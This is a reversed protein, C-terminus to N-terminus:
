HLSPPALLDVGRTIEVLWQKHPENTVVAIIVSTDVVISM